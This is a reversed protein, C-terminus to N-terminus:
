SEKFVWFAITKEWNLNAGFTTCFQLLAGEVQQLNTLTGDVYLAIDDAFESDLTDQGSIPMVVVCAWLNHQYFYM